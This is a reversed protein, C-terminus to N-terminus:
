PETKLAIFLPSKARTVLVLVTDGKKAGSLAARFDALGEVKKRGISTVVDGSLIGAKEAPGGGEVEVVV